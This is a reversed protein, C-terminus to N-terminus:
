RGNEKWVIWLFWYEDREVLWCHLRESSVALQRSFAELWVEVDM